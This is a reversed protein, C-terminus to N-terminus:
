FYFGNECEKKLTEERLLQAVIDQPVLEGKEMFITIESKRPHGEPIDRLLQGASILPIGYYESMLKGVTGKGSGQPGVLLIKM